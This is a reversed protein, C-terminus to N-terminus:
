NLTELFVEIQSQAAELGKRTEEPDRSTDGFFKQIAAILEEESM